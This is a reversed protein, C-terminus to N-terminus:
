ALSRSVERVKQTASDIQTTSASISQMNSTLRKVGDSAVQMNQSIDQTVATQQDVASSIGLSIENIQEIISMIKEIAKVASGTTNQVSVIQNSIEETARSTQSALSKVESAVVAFGKGSEGARAAEITANLALLNTQSAIGDILEIVNGITKADDSLGTMIQSSRAAEDVASHAIEMASRVQRSIEQISAVLEEAAAAISQVSSATQESTAASGTAQRVTETLAESISDLDTNLSKQINRRQREAVQATIDSAFKVVKMPRGEADFIPNYTAQIWIEKGNKGIRKFEGSKFQGSALEKWFAKYEPSARDKPEVFMSHHKGRIEDISYGLTQLFNENANQITGDLDFHIVAQSKNIAAVQGEFEANRVKERTVDSAIKVIKTVKGSRSFVPNYSARIWVENGSKDIRKFEDAHFEGKGLKKWFESYEDSAAYADEVFMKHHRGRIEELKYGMTKLFNENASLIIGDPTFEIIAQSRSFAQLTADSNRGSFRM